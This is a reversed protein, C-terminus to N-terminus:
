VRGGHCDNDFGCFFNICGPAQTSRNPSREAGGAATATGSMSRGTRRARLSPFMRLNLSHHVSAGSSRNAGQYPASNAPGITPPRHVPTRAVPHDTSGRIVPIGQLGAPESEVMPIRVCMGRMDREHGGMGERLRWQFEPVVIRPAAMAVTGSTREVSMRVARSAVHFLCHSGNAVIREWAQCSRRLCDRLCRCRCHLGLPIRHGSCM